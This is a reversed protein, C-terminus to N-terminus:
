ELLDLVEMGSFSARLIDIVSTVRCGVCQAALIDLEGQDVQMGQRERARVWHAIAAAVAPHQTQPSIVGRQAYFAQLLDQTGAMAPFAVVTL